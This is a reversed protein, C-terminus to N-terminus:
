SMALLREYAAEVQPGPRAGVEEELLARCEEYIALGRSVNGTALHAQLLAAYASERLPDLTLLRRADTITQEHDGAASWVQFCCKSRM